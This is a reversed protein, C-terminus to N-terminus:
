TICPCFYHPFKWDAIGHIPVEIDKNKANLPAGLWPYLKSHGVSQFIGEHSFCSTEDQNSQIREFEEGTIKLQKSPMIKFRTKIYRLIMFTGEYYVRKRITHSCLNIRKHKHSQCKVLYKEPSPPFNHLINYSKVWNEIEM